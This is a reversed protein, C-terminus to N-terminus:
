YRERGVDALPTATNAIAHYSVLSAAHITVGSSAPRVVESKQEVIPLSHLLLILACVAAGALGLEAIVVRSRPKRLAPVRSRSAHQRVAGLADDWFANAAEPQPLSRLLARVSQLERHDDACRRCEAIHRRTAAARRGRLRGDILDSLRQNCRECDMPIRGTLRVTM